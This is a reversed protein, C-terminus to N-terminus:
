RLSTELEDRWLEAFQQIDRGNSLSLAEFPMMNHQHLPASSTAAPHSPSDIVKLAPSQHISDPNRKREELLHFLEDYSFLLSDTQPAYPNFDLIHGRSMDRTLLVDFVDLERTPSM